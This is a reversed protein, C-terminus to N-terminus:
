LPPPPLPEGPCGYSVITKKLEGRKLRTCLAGNLRVAKKEASTWSWGQSADEMILTNDVDVRTLSNEPPPQNVPIDCSVTAAAIEALATGLDAENDASYYKLEGARARGGAEALSNLTSRATSMADGDGKVAIGLVFVDLGAEEKAAKVAAIAGPIDSLADSRKGTMPDFGCTPEGDTALLIYKPRGNNRAKLIMVAEEIAPAMPTAGTDIRPIKAAIAATLAAAQGVDPPTVLGEAQCPDPLCQYPTASGPTCSPFMKTGWAIDSQTSTMVTKLANTAFTWRDIEGAEPVDHKPTRRMSGSRDLVVLVDPPTRVLPLVTTGCAELADGGGEKADTGGLADGFTIDPGPGGDGNGTSAGKGGSGAGGTGGSGPGANGNGPRPGCAALIGLVALLHLNKSSLSM